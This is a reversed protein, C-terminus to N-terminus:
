AYTSAHVARELMCLWPETDCGCPGSTGAVPGWCCRWTPLQSDSDVSLVQLWAAPTSGLALAVGQEAEVQIANRLNRGHTGYGYLLFPDSGDLKALDKRWLLTFPVETGDSAKCWRRETVYNGKDFGGLM